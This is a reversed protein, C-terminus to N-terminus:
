WLEHWTTSMKVVWVLQSVYQCQYFIFDSPALSCATLRDSLLSVLHEHRKLSEANSLHLCLFSLFLTPWLQVLFNGWKVEKKFCLLSWYLQFLGSNDMYKLTVKNCINWLTTTSTLYVLWFLPWSIAWSKTGHIPSAGFICSGLKGMICSMDLLRIKRYFWQQPKGYM